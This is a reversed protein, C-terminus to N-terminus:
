RQVSSPMEGRAIGPWFPPIKQVVPSSCSSYPWLASAGSIRILIILFLILFISSAPCTMGSEFFAAKCPGLDAGIVSTPQPDDFPAISSPISSRLLSPISVFKKCTRYTLGKGVSKTWCTRPEARLFYCNFVIVRSLHCPYDASFSTYSNVVSNHLEISSWKGLVFDVFADFVYYLVSHFLNSYRM